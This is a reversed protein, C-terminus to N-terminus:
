GAASRKRTPKATTKEVLESLLDSRSTLLQVLRMVPKTPINTGAEWAEVTKKTVGLIAALAGQSAGLRVRIRKIDGVTHTPVPKIVVTSSTIGLVEKGQIHATMQGASEKLDEFLRSM